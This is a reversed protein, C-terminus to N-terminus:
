INSVFYIIHLFNNQLKLNEKLIIIGLDGVTTVSGKLTIKSVNIEKHLKNFKNERIYKLHIM